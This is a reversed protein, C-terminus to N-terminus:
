LNPIDDNEEGEAAEAQAPEEYSIGWAFIKNTTAGVAFGMPSILKVPEEIGEVAKVSIKM